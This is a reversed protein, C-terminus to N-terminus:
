FRYQHSVQMPLALLALVYTWRKLICSEKFIELPVKIKQYVCDIRIRKYTLEFSYKKRM